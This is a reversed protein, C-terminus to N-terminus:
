RLKSFPLDCMPSLPPIFPHKLKGNCILRVLAGCQWLFGFKGCICFSGHLNRWAFCGHLIKVFGIHVSTKGGHACAFFCTATFLLYVTTCVSPQVLLHLYGVLHLKKNKLKNTLKPYNQPFYWCHYSSLNLNM